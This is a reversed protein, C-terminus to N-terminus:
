AGGYWGKSLSQVQGLLRTQSSSASVSRQYLGLRGDSQVLVTGYIGLSRLLAIGEDLAAKALHM